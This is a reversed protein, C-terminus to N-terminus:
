KEQINKRRGWNKIGHYGLVNALSTAIIIWVENYFITLIGLFIFSYSNYKTFFNNRMLNHRTMYGFFTFLIFTGLIILYHIGDSPHTWYIALLILSGALAHGYHDLKYRTIWSLLIGLYFAGILGSGLVVLVAFIGWLLGFVYEAGKFFCRKKGDIALDALKTFVGTILANLILVWTLSLFDLM